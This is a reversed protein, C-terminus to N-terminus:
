YVALTGSGMAALATRVRELAHTLRNDKSM